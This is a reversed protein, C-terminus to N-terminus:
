QQNALLNIRDQLIRQLDSHSRDHDLAKLWDVSEGSTGIYDQSSSHNQPTASLPQSKPHKNKQQTPQIIFRHVLAWHARSSLANMKLVALLQKLTYLEEQPTILDVSIFAHAQPDLSYKNRTQPQSQSQKAHHSNSLLHQIMALSGLDHNMALLSQTYSSLFANLIKQHSAMLYNNKDQARALRKEIPGVGLILDIIYTWPQDGANVGGLYVYPENIESMSLQSHTFDIPPSLLSNRKLSIPDYYCRFLYFDEVSLEHMLSVSAHQAHKLSEIAQTCASWIYSLLPVTPSNPQDESLINKPDNLHSSSIWYQQNWAGTVAQILAPDYFKLLAYCVEEYALTGQRNAELFKSESKWPLFTARKGNKDQPNQILYPASLFRPLVQLHKAQKQILFALEDLNEPLISAKFKGLKESLFRVHHRSIASYIMTLYNFYELNLYETPHDSIYSQYLRAFSQAQTCLTKYATTQIFSDGIETSMSELKQNLHPFCERIWHFLHQSIEKM